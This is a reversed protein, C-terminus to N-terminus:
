DVADAADAEPTLGLDAFAHGRGCPTSYGSFGIRVRGACFQRVRLTIM